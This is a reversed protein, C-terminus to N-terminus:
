QLDVKGPRNAPTTTISGAIELDNIDKTVVTLNEGFMDCRHPFFVHVVGLDKRSIEVPQESAIDHNRFDSRWTKTDAVLDGNGDFSAYGDDTQKTRPLSASYRRHQQAIGADLNDLVPCDAFDPVGEFAKDGIEAVSECEAGAPRDQAVTAM